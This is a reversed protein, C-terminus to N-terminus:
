NYNNEHQRPRSQSQFKPWCLFLFISVWDLDLYLLVYSPELMWFFIFGPNGRGLRLLISVLGMGLTMILLLRRQRRPGDFTRPWGFSTLCDLLGYRYFKFNHFCINHFFVLFIWIFFGQKFWSLFKFLVSFFFQFHCFNFQIM